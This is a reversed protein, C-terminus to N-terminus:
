RLLRNFEDDIRRYCGCAARELGARDEIRIRGRTYRILGASQLAGAAVTVGSRRAGLMISLFAQTLPVDIGDGRDRAMLIWRACRENLPHVSNCVAIMSIQALYAQVYRLCKCRLDPFLGVAERLSAATMGHASGPMQVMARHFAVPHDDLLAAVGVLGERGM